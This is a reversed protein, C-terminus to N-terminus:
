RGITVALFGDAYLSLFNGIAFYMLLLGGTVVFPLSVFYIPIQPTLKNILGIGLNVLIAYAVFPSGLRFIVFFSQSITNTVDVLASQPDFLIDPPAVQYSTILAKIIELHFDLLFLILLAAFSLLGGLAAQPESELALSGGLNSFGMMMSIANGMFELALLYLRALIGILAGTLLESAITKFLMDPTSEAFPLIVDSLPLFLALSVAVAVFLRVQMPVRANSFGPMIMFCAGVRCFALFAGLVVQSITVTV